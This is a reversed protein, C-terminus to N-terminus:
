VWWPDSKKFGGIQLALRVLDKWDHPTTVTYQLYTAQPPKYTEMRGIESNWLLVKKNNLHDPRTKEEVNLFDGSIRDLFLNYNDAKDITCNAGRSECHAILATVSEFYKLCSPCKIRIISHDGLIHYDLDKPIMFTQECVFPCHYKSIVFDYFKEPNWDTSMPDWFRTRMLNIGHEQEM